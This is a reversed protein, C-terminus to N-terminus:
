RVESEKTGMAPLNKVKTIRDGRLKQGKSRMAMLNKNSNLLAALLYELLLRGKRLTITITSVGGVAGSFGDMLGADMENTGERTFVSGKGANFQPSDELVKIASVVARLASRGASLELMAANASSILATRCEHERETTMAGIIGCGGHVVVVGKSATM